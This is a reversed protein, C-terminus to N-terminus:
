VLQSNILKREIKYTNDKNFTLHDLYSINCGHKNERDRIIDILILNRKRYLVYGYQVKDKSKALYIYLYGTLYGEWQSTAAVRYIEKCIEKEAEEFSHCISYKKSGNNIIYVPKDSM